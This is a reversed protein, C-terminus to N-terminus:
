MWRELTNPKGVKVLKQLPSSTLQELPSADDRKRPSHSLVVVQKAGLARALMVAYHGLGGLGIVGVSSSPGVGSRVLPSFITVGACFLPAALESPIADPIPFVFRLNSRLHCFSKSKMFVFMIQSAVMHQRATQMGPIILRWKLHVTNNMIRSVSQVLLALCSRRVSGM